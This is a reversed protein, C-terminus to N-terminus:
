GPFILRGVLAGAREVLASKAVVQAFGAEHAGRLGETDTHNTYGLLPVGPWAAALTEADVKQIDAIVLAPVEEGSHTVLHHERLLGELKARMFLDVGALLITAVAALTGEAPHVAEVEQAGPVEELRVLRELLCPARRCRGLPVEELAEDVDRDGPVLGPAAPPDAALPLERLRRPPESRVSGLM